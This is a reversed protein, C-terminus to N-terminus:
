NKLGELRITNLEEASFLGSRYLNLYEMSVTQNFALIDDSNITVKIGHDFLIKIPHTEINKVRGLKINSTPCINVRINNKKLWNMVAESQVASIGHQVEDLNLIKVTKQISKADSFEGIHAKLKMREEKARIYIKRYVEPKEADETGYLDISKFYGSEILPLAWVELKKINLDRNLGIVPRFDLTPAVLAHIEKLKNIFVDPNGNYRDIFWCDISMELLTIGDRLATLLSAKLLYEFGERTSAIPKIIPRTYRTMDELNNYKLPAKSINKKYWKNIFSIDSGLPFHNHLDSKPASIVGALNNLKLAEVFKNKSIRKTIDGMNM